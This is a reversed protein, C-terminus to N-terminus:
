VDANRSWRAADHRDVHVESHKRGHRRRSGIRLPKRDLRDRPTPSESAGTAVTPNHTPTVITITGLVADANEVTRAYLHYGNLDLITGSDLIITDVYIAENTATANSANDSLNVLQVHTGNTVIIKPYAFNNAFGAVVALLDQSM